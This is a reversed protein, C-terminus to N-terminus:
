PRQHSTEYVERMEIEKALLLARILALIQWAILLRAYGLRRNYLVDAGYLM